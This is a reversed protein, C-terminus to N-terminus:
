WSGRYNPKIHVPKRRRVEIILVKTVYNLLTKVFSTKGASKRGIVMLNLHIPRQTQRELEGKLAMLGSHQFNPKKSQPSEITFLNKEVKSFEIGELNISEFM